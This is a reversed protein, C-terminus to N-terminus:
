ISHCIRSFDSFMKSPATIGTNFLNRTAHALIAQYAITARDFRKDKLEECRVNIKNRTFPFVVSRVEDDSMTAKSNEDSIKLILCVPSIAEERASRYPSLDM